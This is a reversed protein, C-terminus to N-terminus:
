DKRQYLRFSVVALLLPLVLTGYNVGLFGRELIDEGLSFGATMLALIALIFLFLYRKKRM